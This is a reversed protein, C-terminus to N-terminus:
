GAVLVGGDNKHRRSGFGGIRFDNKAPMGTFAVEWKVVGVGSLGRIRLDIEMRMGGGSGRGKDRRQSLSYCLLRAAARIYGRPIRV